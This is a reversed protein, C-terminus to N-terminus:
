KLRSLIDKLKVEGTEKLEYTVRTSPKNITTIKRLDVPTAIIVSDCPTRNISEELDKVQQNGYGMAPLLAGTGPYKKFTEDITGVAYPRPDIIESAGFKQAAVIGAGYKMEGHTVTPGDEIVLVRKETILTTDEVTLPSEAKILAAGPNLKRAAEIVADVNEPEATDIKNVILVDAARLNVEGPYYRTEHGPRHPDLITIYIDPKYFAFDNNGGEWLIVDAEAEAERLIAEYDVGAFVTIGRVIHPEYEEREEITCKHVDLDRLSAFRQVQQKVLSGYPMPHRVVVTKKGMDRLIQAVYRTTQSKGSGTRVACVAVVPLSSELWTEALGMLRFSAGASNVVAARNMVMTYSVDSYSFVVEDVEHKKILIELESEPVIPVGNPYLSGALEPPYNRDDINPIQAATFAVVDFGPNDRFCINFNHFDRGAAGMIIIRKKEVVPDGCNDPM